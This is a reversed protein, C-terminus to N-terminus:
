NSAKKEQWRFRRVALFTWVTAAVRMLDREVPAAIKVLIGRAAEALINYYIYIKKITFLHRLEGLYAFVLEFTDREELSFNGEACM